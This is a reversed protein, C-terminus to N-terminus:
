PVCFQSIRPFLTTGATLYIVEVLTTKHLTNESELKEEKEEKRSTKKQQNGKAWRSFYKRLFCVSIYVRISCLYTIINHM